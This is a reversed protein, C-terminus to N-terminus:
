RALASSGDIRRLHAASATQLVEHKKLKAATIVASLM